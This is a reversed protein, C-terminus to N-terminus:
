YNKIVKIFLPKKASDIGLSILMNQIIAGDAIRMNIGNLSRYIDFAKRNFCHFLFVSVNYNEVEPFPLDENSRYLVIASVNKEKVTECLMDIDYYSMHEVRFTFACGIDFLNPVSM